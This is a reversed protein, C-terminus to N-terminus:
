KLKREGILGYEKAQATIGKKKYYKILDRAIRRNKKRELIIWIILLLIFLVVSVIILLENM